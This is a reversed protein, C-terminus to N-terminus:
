ELIVEERYSPVSIGWGTRKGLFDAFRTALIHGAEYFTTTVGGGIHLPEEYRVPSLLPFCARADDITYLPIEPYPGKKGEREHRRRKLEADEQQLHASDMLMIPVIESTAATCYIQGRFGEGVLKPLWGCHDLHAHTLLVADIAESAVPFADWNRARSEREQYLGCDVLLRTDNAEILYRSGTVNQSAGMFALKIHM